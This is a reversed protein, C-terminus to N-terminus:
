LDQVFHQNRAHNDFTVHVTITKTATQGDDDKAQITINYFGPVDYTHELDFGDTADIALPQVGSGDGYDVTAQFVDPGPDALTGHRRFPSGPAAVGDSGVNITPDVGAVTCEVLVTDSLGTVQDTFRVYIPVIRAGDSPSWTLLGTSPNIRAAPPAGPELSFVLPHNEPN